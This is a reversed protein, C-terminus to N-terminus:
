KKSLREMKEELSKVRIFHKRIFYILVYLLYVFLFSVALVAIFEGVAFFTFDNSWFTYFFVIIWFHWRSLIWNNFTGKKKNIEM